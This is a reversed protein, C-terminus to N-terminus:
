EKYGKIDLTYTDTNDNETVNIDTVKVLFVGAANQIMFMDGIALKATETLDTGLAWAEALVEKNDASDFTFGDIQSFDAMRLTAGNVPEIKQIWNVANSSAGLDIGKDRFDADSSSSSTNVGADLDYGGKAPGDANNIIVATYATNLPTTLPAIITITITVEATKDKEDTVEFTYTTIDGIVDHATIQFEYTAGDKDAGLILFPNNSTLAGSNIEFKDTALATGDELISVSKLQSDGTLFSVKVNFVEGAQLEADANLFDIESVLEAEPGLVTPVPDPDCSTILFSGLLLAMGAFQYFFKKM